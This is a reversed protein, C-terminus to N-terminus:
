PRGVTCRHIHTKLVGLKHGKDCFGWALMSSGERLDRLFMGVERVSLISMSTGPSAWTASCLVPLLPPFQIWGSWM